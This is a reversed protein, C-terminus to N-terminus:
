KFHRIFTLTLKQLQVTFDHSDAEPHSINGDRPGGDEREENYLIM